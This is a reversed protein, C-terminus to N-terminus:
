LAVGRFRANGQTEESRTREGSVLAQARPPSLNQWAEGLVGCLATASELQAARTSNDKRPIIDLPILVPETCGYSRKGIRSRHHQRLVRM